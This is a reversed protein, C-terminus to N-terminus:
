PDSQLYRVVHTNPEETQFIIEHRKTKEHHSYTPELPTITACIHVSSLLHMTKQFTDQNPNKHINQKTQKTKNQRELKIRALTIQSSPIM